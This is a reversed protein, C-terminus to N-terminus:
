VGRLWRSYVHRHSHLGDENMRFLIELLSRIELNGLDQTDNHLKEVYRGRKLLFGLYEQGKCQLLFQVDRYNILLKVHDLTLTQGVRSTTFEGAIWTLSVEKVLPDRRQLLADLDKKLKSIKELPELYDSVTSM